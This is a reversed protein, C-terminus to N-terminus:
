KAHPLAADIKEMLWSWAELEEPGATKDIAIKLYAVESEIKARPLRNLRTVLIAAEIIASKARNHGQFPRHTEERVIACRFRPRQPDEEVAVVQLEWHSVAVALRPVPITTSPALPWDRRGTVCGAFIRVDDVHSAALFPQSRLNDLTTSPKFPAAIWHEGEAILGLPAVQVRGSADMTTLITERIMPM